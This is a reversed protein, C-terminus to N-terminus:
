ESLCENADVISTAGPRGPTRTMVEIAQLVTAGSQVRPNREGTRMLEGVKMLRRGLDGGALLAATRPAQRGLRLDRRGGARDGDAREGGTGQHPGGIGVTAADGDGDQADSRQRHVPSWRRKQITWWQRTRCMM